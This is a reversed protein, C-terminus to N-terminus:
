RGRDLGPGERPSDFTADTLRRLTARRALPAAPRDARRSRTIGHFHPCVDNSRAPRLGEGGDPRATEPGHRVPGGRRSPVLRRDIPPDHGDGPGVLDALGGAGVGHHRTGAAGHDEGSVTMGDSSETTKDSNVISPRFAATLPSAELYTVEAREDD